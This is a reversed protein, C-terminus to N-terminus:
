KRYHMGRFFGIKFADELAGIMDVGSGDFCKNDELIESLQNATPCLMSYVGANEIEETAANIERSLEM